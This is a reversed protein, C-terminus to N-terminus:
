QAGEPHPGDVVVPRPLRRFPLSIPPLYRHVWRGVLALYVITGAGGGALLALVPSGISTAVSHAAFWTPFLALTPVWIAKVLVRCRVELSRLALAYAPLIILASVALHAWAAGRVGNWHAGLTVAPILSLFWVIQVYLVPRAAGRAMLFSALLDLVVRLAGFLGLAALVGASASWQAGYLLAVLPV